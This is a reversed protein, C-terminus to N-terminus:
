IDMVDVDILLSKFNPYTKAGYKDAVPRTEDASESVMGIISADTQSWAEAHTLGMFGVGVIGVKM